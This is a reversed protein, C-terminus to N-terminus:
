ESAVQLAPWKQIWKDHMAVIVDAGVPNDRARDREIAVQLSVPFFVNQITYDASLEDLVAKVERTTYPNLNTNDIVVNSGSRWASVLFSKRSRSLLKGNVRGFIQGSLMYCFDDNNWRLYGSNDNIFKKAWTSKGSGPLGRTMIIHM